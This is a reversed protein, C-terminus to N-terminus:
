ENHYFSFFEAIIRPDLQPVNAWPVRLALKAPRLPTAMIGAQYQVLEVQMSKIHVDPYRKALAFASIRRIIQLSDSHRNRGRGRVAHELAESVANAATLPQRKLILIASVDIWPSVRGVVIARVLVHTDSRPPDPAFM